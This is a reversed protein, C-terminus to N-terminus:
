LLDADEAIISDNFRTLIENIASQPKLDDGIGEVEVSNDIKLIEDISPGCKICQEKTLWLLEHGLNIKSALYNHMEDFSSYQEKSTKYM